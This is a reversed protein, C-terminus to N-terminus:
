IKGPISKLYRWEPDNLLRKVAPWHDKNYIDVGYERLWKYQIVIPISACHMMDDKIGERMHEEDAALRRNRSIIDSCNQVTHIITKNTAHDFDHYTSVGTARDHGLLRRNM